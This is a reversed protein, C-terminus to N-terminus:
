AGAKSTAALIQRLRTTSAEPLEIRQGGDHRIVITEIGDADKNLHATWGHILNFTQTQPTKM